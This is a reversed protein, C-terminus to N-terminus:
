ATPLDTYFLQLVLRVITDTQLPPSKGLGGWSRSPTRYEYVVSAAGEIKMSELAHSNIFTNPSGADLLAICSLQVAAPGSHIMIKTTLPADDVPTIGAVLCPGQESPMPPLLGPHRDASMVALVDDSHDQPM